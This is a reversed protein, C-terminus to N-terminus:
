GLFSPCVMAERNHLDLLNEFAERHNGIESDLYSNMDNNRFVPFSALPPLSVIVVPKFLVAQRHLSQSETRKWNKTPLKIRM